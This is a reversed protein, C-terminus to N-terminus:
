KSYGELEKKHNEKYITLINAEKESGVRVVDKVMIGGGFLELSFDVLTIAVAEDSTRTDLKYRKYVELMYGEKKSNLFWRITTPSVLLPPRDWKKEILYKLIGGFEALKTLCNTNGGVGFAYGEMVVLPYRSKVEEVINTALLSYKKIESIEKPFLKVGLTDYYIKTHEIYRSDEVKVVAIGTGSISPDIGVISDFDVM